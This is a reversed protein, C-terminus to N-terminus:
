EATEPAGTVVINDFLATVDIFNGDADKPAWSPNNGGHFTSFLFKSILTEDGGQGRFEMDQSDAVLEGDVFLQTFGNAQGVDNLRTVIKVHQWEGIKFVPKTTRKGVGYKHGEGQDYLYTRAYGDKSWMIRSSWSEPRRPMGGSVVNDPGVGHLKGGRVFQWGDEFKVDFDLAAYDTKRPFFVHTVVRESGMESGIYTVRLANSGDAAQGEALTIKPHRLLQEATPNPGNDLVINILTDENAVLLSLPTLYAIALIRLRSIM